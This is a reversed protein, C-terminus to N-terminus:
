LQNNPKTENKKETPTINSISNNTNYNITKTNNFFTEKLYNFMKKPKKGSKIFDNREKISGYPTTDFDILDFESAIYIGLTTGLLIQAFNRIKSRIPDMPLIYYPLNGNKKVSEMILDDIMKDPVLCALRHNDITTAIICNHQVAIQITFITNNKINEILEDYTIVKEIPPPVLGYLSWHGYHNEPNIINNNLSPSLNQFIQNNTYFFDASTSLPYAITTIGILSRRNLRSNFKSNLKLSETEKLLLFYFFLLKKIYM